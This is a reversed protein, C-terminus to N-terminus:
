SERMLEDIAQMVKQNETNVLCQPDGFKCTEAPWCPACPMDKILTITNKDNYPRTEGAIGCGGWLVILRTGVANAMHASGSDVSIVIDAQKMVGALELLTTKGTLNYIGRLDDLKKIIANVYDVEGHSGILIINFDYKDLIERIMSVSKDIPLRRSQVASNVNFVMNKGAPLAPSKVKDVPLKVPIANVKRGTFLSLLHVFREVFHLGPPLQYSHTLLFGRMEKKFGVRTSSGSFYGLLADSFSMRLAFYIDYKKAKRIMKGFRHLGRVGKYEQKSFPYFSNIYTKTRCLGLYPKQVIVDIDDDPYLGSLLDLFPFAMLTDGLKAPLRVLINM